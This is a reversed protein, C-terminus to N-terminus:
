WRIIREDTRDNKVKIMIMVRDRQHIAFYMKMDMQIMMVMVVNIMCQIYYRCDLHIPKKKEFTLHRDTRKKYLLKRHSRKKEEEREKHVCFFMCLKV